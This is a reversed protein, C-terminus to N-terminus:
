DPWYHYVSNCHCYDFGNDTYFKLASTNDLQTGVKIKAIGKDHLFFEMTHILTKGIRQGRYNEDVAILEITSFINKEAISLM